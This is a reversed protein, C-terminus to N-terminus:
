ILSEYVEKILKNVEDITDDEQIDVESLLKYERIKRYYMSENILGRHKLALLQQHLEELGIEKIAQTKLAKDLDKANLTNSM